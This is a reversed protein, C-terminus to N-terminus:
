FFRPLTTNVRQLEPEGTRMFPNYAPLQSPNVASAGGGAIGRPDASQLGRALKQKRDQGIKAVAEDIAKSVAERLNGSFLGAQNYMGTTSKQYKAIARMIQKLELWEAYRTIMDGHRLSAAPLDYSRLSTRVDDITKQMKRLMDPAPAKLKLVGGEEVVHSVLEQYDESTFFMKATKGYFPIWIIEGGVKAFPKQAFPRVDEDEAAGPGKEQPKQTVIEHQGRFPEFRPDSQKFAKEGKPEDPTPKVTVGFPEIPQVNAEVGQGYGLKGRSERTYYNTDGTAWQFSDVKFTNQEDPDMIDDRGDAGDGPTEGATVGAGGELADTEVGAAAEEVGEEVDVEEFAEEKPTVDLPEGKADQVEVVDAPTAPSPESVAAAPPAAPPAPPAPPPTQPVISAVVPAAATVVQAVQQQLETPLAAPPAPVVANETQRDVIQGLVTGQLGQTIISPLASVGRQRKAGDEEKVVMEGERKVGPSPVHPAAGIRQRTESGLGGQDIALPEGERKVGIVDRTKPLPGTTPAAPVIIGFDRLENVVEQREELVEEMQGEEGGELIDADTSALIERLEKIRQERARKGMKKHREERHRVGEFEVDKPGRRGEKKLEKKVEEKVPVITGDGAGAGAGAGDGTGAGAGEEIQMVGGTGFDGGVRQRKFSETILVNQGRQEEIEKEVQRAALVAKEYNLKANGEKKERRESLRQVVNKITGVAAKVVNEAHWETFEKAKKKAERVAIDFVAKQVQKMALEANIKDAAKQAIERVISEAVTTQMREQRAILEQSAGRKSM